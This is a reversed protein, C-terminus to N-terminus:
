NTVASMSQVGSLWRYIAKAGVSAGGALLWPATYAWDAYKPLFQAFSDPLILYFLLLAIIGVAFPVANEKKTWVKLM